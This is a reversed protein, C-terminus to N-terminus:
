PDDRPAANTSDTGSEAEAPPAGPVSPDSRKSEWDKRVQSIEEGLRESEEQLRDAERELQDALEEPEAGTM